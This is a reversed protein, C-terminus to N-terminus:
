VHFPDFRQVLYYYLGYILGLFVGVPIAATLVTALPRYPSQARHFVGRRTPRRRHRCDGHRILLQGYAWVFGRDRHAHLMPASPLM